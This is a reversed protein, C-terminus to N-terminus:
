SDGMTQQVQWARKGLEGPPGISVATLHEEFKNNVGQFQGESAGSWKRVRRRM